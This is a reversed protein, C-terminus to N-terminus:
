RAQASVTSYVHTVECSHNFAKYPSRYHPLNGFSM